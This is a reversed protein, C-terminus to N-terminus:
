SPTNQDAQEATREESREVFKNFGAQSSHAAFCLVSYAVAERLDMELTANISAKAMQIADPDMAAIKRALAMAGDLMQDPPFVQNAFGIRWAERGDIVDGTFILEKAKAAGVIRPMYATAGGGGILGLNKIHMDSIQATESAIRIDCVEALEIGGGTCVGDIAAITPKPMQYLSLFPVQDTNKALGYIENLINGSKVGRAELGKAAVEKIDAGACFCPRGDARPAGTIILVRVDDSSAADAIAEEVERTLEMSLANLAGPRNLTLVAVHDKKVYTITNYAVKIGGQRHPALIKLLEFFGRHRLDV